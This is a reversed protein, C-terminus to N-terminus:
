RPPPVLITRDFEAQWRNERHNFTRVQVRNPYLYLSNTWITDGKMSNNHINVIRDAYINIFSAYSAETPPTHTHGSVWLFIQPNTILLMHMWAAPQIVAGPRNVYRRFRTQTGHLPPHAFIITPQNRHWLLQIRLWALQAEGIGTGIRDHDTSLFLLLYGGIELKYYHRGLGFTQRFKALKAQQFVFPARVYGRAALPYPTKFYYDHNGVIPALPHRLNRFYTAAAAYERATGYRETLDGVAVVLAVDRWSNIRALVASKAAPNNGPLHPDGLVVLHAPAGTGAPPHRAGCGCLVILALLVTVILPAVPRRSPLSTAPRGGSDPATRCWGTRWAEFVLTAVNGISNLPYM